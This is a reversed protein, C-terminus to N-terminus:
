KGCEGCRFVGPRAVQVDDGCESCWAGASSGFDDSVRPLDPDAPEWMELVLLRLRKIENEAAILDAVAENREAALNVNEAVVRRLEALHYVAQARAEDRELLARMESPDIDPCHNCVDWTIPRRCRPCLKDSM